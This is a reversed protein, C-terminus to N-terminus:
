GLCCSFRFKKWTLEANTFVVTYVTLRPLESGHLLCAVHKAGRWPERDLAAGMRM